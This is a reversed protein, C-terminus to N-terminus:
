EEEDAFLPFAFGEFADAATREGADTNSHIQATPAAGAQAGPSPSPSSSSDVRVRRISILKIGYEKGEDTTFIHEDGGDEATLSLFSCTAASPRCRGEGAQTVTSDVLFVAEGNDDASVGLFVLLPNNSSPLIGLRNVARKKTGKATTLEVLAQYTFVQKEETQVPPTGGGGGGEGVDGGPDGGAPAGGSEPAGADATEVGAAQEVSKLARLPKFPDKSSFESLTSTRLLPKAAELDAPLVQAGALGEPTAPPAPAASPAPEEAPKALLVPVAVLGVLLAVAVPWLRKERLDSWIELLMNTM